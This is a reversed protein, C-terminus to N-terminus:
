QIKSRAQPNESGTVAESITVTSVTKAAASGAAGPYKPVNWYAVTNANDNKEIGLSSASPKEM